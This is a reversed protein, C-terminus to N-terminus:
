SQLDAMLADKELEVYDPESAALNPEPRPTGRSAM